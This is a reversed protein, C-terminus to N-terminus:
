CTAIIFFCLAINLATTVSIFFPTVRLGIDKSYDEEGCVTCHSECLGAGAPTNVGRGVITFVYAFEGLQSRIHSDCQVQRALVPRM